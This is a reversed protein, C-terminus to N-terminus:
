SVLIQAPTLLYSRGSELFQKLDFLAKVNFRCLTTFTLARKQKLLFNGLKNLQTKTIM